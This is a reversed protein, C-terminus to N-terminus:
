KRGNEWVNGDREINTLKGASFCADNGGFMMDLLTSGSHGNGAIYLIRLENM